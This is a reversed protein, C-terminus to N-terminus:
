ESKEGLYKQIYCESLGGKGTERYEEKLDNGTKREVAVIDDLDFIDHIGNTLISQEASIIARLCVAGNREICPSYVYGLIPDCTLGLHHEMGIIAAAEIEKLSGGILYCYAAAAMSCAVGIEAQCGGTAGAISGNHKFCNGVIGAVALAEYIKELEYGKHKWAYYLVSPIVGASGLTPSTVVEGGMVNLESVAYAYAMAYLPSKHDYNGNKLKDYVIKAKKTIKIVSAFKNNDELGELVSKSMTAWIRPLSEWGIKDFKKVYDVLTKNNDICWERIQKFNNHPYVEINVPHPDDVIEISGGGISHARMKPLEIGNAQVGHIEMTNPHEPISTVDWIVQVNRGEAASIIASDTHHGKGTLALSGYLHVTLSKVNPYYQIYKKMIRFPGVTHSSSPGKGIKYMEILSEM